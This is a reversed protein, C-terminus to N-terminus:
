TFLLISHHMGRVGGEVFDEFPDLFIAIHEPKIHFDIFNQTLEQHHLLTLGCM